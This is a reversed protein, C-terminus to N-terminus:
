YRPCGTGKRNRLSSFFCTYLLVRLTASAKITIDRGTYARPGLAQAFSSTQSSSPDVVLKSHRSQETVPDMTGKDSALFCRCAGRPCHVIDPQSRPIRRAKGLHVCKDLKPVAAPPQATPSPIRRRPRPHWKLFPPQPSDAVVRLWLLPDGYGWSGLRGRAMAIVFIFLRGRHTNDVSRYSM